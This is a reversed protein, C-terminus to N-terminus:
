KVCFVNFGDTQNSRTKGFLKDLKEFFRTRKSFFPFLNMVTALAGRGNIIEVSSFDKLLYELGDRTFRYYDKYYGAMPHYYFIFPVQMFCCGGPKLSRYIEKVAKSPEEVHELVSICLISDISNDKFPLNHIDGVIDPNYDAVKDLIKYDANKALAIAWPNHIGRNNRKPDIRLGGGIDVIVKREKFIQTIKERFFIEDKRMISYIYCLIHKYYVGM